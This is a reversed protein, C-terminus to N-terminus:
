GCELTRQAAADETLRHLQVTSPQHTSSAAALPELETTLSCTRAAIVVLQILLSESSWGRHDNVDKSSELQPTVSAVIDDNSPVILCMSGTVALPVHM